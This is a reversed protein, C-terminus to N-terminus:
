PRARASRGAAAGSAPASVRGRSKLVYWHTGGAAPIEFTLTGDRREFNPKAAVRGDGTMSLLELDSAKTRLAIRAYVPESLYPAKGGPSGVTRAVATVLVFQSESLPRDDVSSLAVVAKRTMVEFSADKTEIRKGGIWGGVAQTRPSDITHIGQEWDRTLEGTDSRVFSQGEPIFDHDPDTVVTVDGTPRSPQLWPLERVEPMGITLKSQEALTRITASTHPSLDRGFLAEASPMFCYTKRAPSVHGRRFLLAAAPMVGTMSPDHFTSWMDPPPYPEPDIPRQSYSLIMPADWGQLAALSAVYLPATFRDAIPYPVNWETISVPKGYVQGAAIWHAFTGQYHANKELEEPAGYSHVDILGGDTLSPLSYLPDDGWFNTTAILSKVGIQRLDAIMMANFEHEAQALYLKSPGPLWTQFVRGPPLNYQKAFQQYGRTWLKNHFPTNKDPLFGNGGHFSLDNENTILVALIGPDDKYRRRTYPNEHNLYQHQVEKMLEQMQRNYYCFANFRGKSRAIEDAGDTVRDGPLVLREYHMDLWVYIGEDKLCKILWDIDDLFGPDLRRTTDIKPYRGFISGWWDGDHHHIRMLNYGLQSIRHAQRAVLERYARRTPDKRTREWLFYGALSGGWFKAPTGDEFVLRDGDARVFGRRGAPREDRNLFSLDVPATYAPLAARFWRDHEVPAYREEPSPKWRAGEPLELTARLRRPGSEIRDAYWFTRVTNKGSREYLVKAAPEDFRLTLVQGQGVRWTWGRDGPLLEPAAVRGGLSSADLKFQWQWGGGIVDNLDEAAQLMLEIRLVNPAASKVDSTVKFKLERNEGAFQHHSEEASVRKMVLMAYKWKRGWFHMATTLVPL